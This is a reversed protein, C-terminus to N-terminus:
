RKEFEAYTARDDDQAGVARNGRRLRDNGSNVLDLTNKLGEIEREAKQIKAHLEDGNRKFRIQFSQITTEVLSFCLALNLFESSSKRKRSCSKDCPLSQIKHLRKELIVHYADSISWFTHATSILGVDFHSM